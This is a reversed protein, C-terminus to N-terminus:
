GQFAGSIEPAKKEEPPFIGEQELQYEMRDGEIADDTVHDAFIKELMQRAEPDTKAQSRATDFFEDVSKEFNDRDYQSMETEFQGMGFESTDTGHERLTEEIERKSMQPM